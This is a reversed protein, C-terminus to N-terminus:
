MYFTINTYYYNSLPTFTQLLNKIRSGKKERNSSFGPFIAFM